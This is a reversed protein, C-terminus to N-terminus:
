TINPVVNKYIDTVDTYYLYSFCNKKNDLNFLHRKMNEHKGQKTTQILLLQFLLVFFDALLTLDM